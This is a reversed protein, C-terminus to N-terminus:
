QGMRSEEAGGAAAASGEQSSLGKTLHVATWDNELGMHVSVRGEWEGECVCACACPRACLVCVCSYVCAVAAQRGVQGRGGVGRVRGVAAVGRQKRLLQAQHQLHLAPIRLGDHGQVGLRTHRGQHNTLHTPPPCTPLTQKLRPTNQTSHPLATPAAQKHTLPHQKDTPPHTPYTAAMALWAGESAQEQVKLAHV